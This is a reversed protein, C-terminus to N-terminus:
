NKALIKRIISFGKPEAPQASASRGNMGWRAANRLWTRFAAQWDAMVNGHALHYDKFAEVESYPDPWGNQRALEVM